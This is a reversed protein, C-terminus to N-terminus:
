SDITVFEANGVERVATWLRRLKSISLGEKHLEKAAEGIIQDPLVEAVVAALSLPVNVHVKSDDGEQVEVHIWPSGQTAAPVAGVVLTAALAASRLVNM